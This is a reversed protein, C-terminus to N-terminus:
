KPCFEKQHYWIFKNHFGCFPLTRNLKNNKKPKKKITNTNYYMDHLQFLLTIISSQTDMRDTGCLVDDCKKDSSNVYSISDLTFSIEQFMATTMGAFIVTNEEDTIAHMRLAYM